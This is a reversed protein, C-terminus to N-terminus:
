QAIPVIPGHRCGDECLPTTEVSILAGTEADNVPHGSVWGDKKTQMVVHGCRGCRM